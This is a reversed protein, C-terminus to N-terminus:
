PAGLPPRSHKLLPPNRDPSMLSYHDECRDPGGPLICALENSNPQLPDNQTAIHGIRGMAPREGLLFDPRHEPLSPLLTM